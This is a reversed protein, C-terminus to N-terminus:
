RSAESCLTGSWIGGAPVGISALSRDLVLHYYQLRTAGDDLAGGFSRQEELYILPVPLEIVKLGTAAIQAWVLVILLTSAARSSSLGSSFYAIGCFDAPQLM